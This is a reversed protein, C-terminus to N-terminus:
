LNIKRRLVGVAGLLGGGVLLFTSPEPSPVVSLRLDTPDDSLVWMEGSALIPLDLTSFRGTENNKAEPSIRTKHTL